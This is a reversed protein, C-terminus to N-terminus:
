AAGEPLDIFYEVFCRKCWWKYRLPQAAHRSAMSTGGVGLFALSVLWRWAAVM